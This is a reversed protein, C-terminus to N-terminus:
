VLKVVVVVPLHNNASAHELYRDLSAMGLRADQSGHKVLNSVNAHSVVIM